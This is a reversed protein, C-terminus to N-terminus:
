TELRCNHALSKCSWFGLFFLQSALRTMTGAFAVNVSATTLFRNRNAEGPVGSVRDFFLVVAAQRAMFPAVPEKPLSTWVVRSFNGTDVAVGPVILLGSFRRGLRPEVSGQAIDICQFTCFWFQTQGTMLHPARLKLARRMHRIALAFHSAATAMIRVATRIRFLEFLRSRGLVAQTTM